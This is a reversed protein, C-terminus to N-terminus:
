CCNNAGPRSLHTRRARCAGRRDRSARMSCRRRGQRRAEANRTQGRLSRRLSSGGAAWKAESSKSVVGRRRLYSSRPSRRGRRRRRLRHVAAVVTRDTRRDTKPGDTRGEMRGEMRGDLPTIHRSASRTHAGAGGDRAGEEEGSRDGTESGPEGWATRAAAADTTPRDTAVHRARATFPARATASEERRREDRTKRRREAGVDLLGKEQYGFFAGKLLFPM